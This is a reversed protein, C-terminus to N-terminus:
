SAWGEGTVGDCARCVRYAIRADYDIRVLRCAAWQALTYSTRCHRCVAAIALVPHTRPTARSARTLAATLM